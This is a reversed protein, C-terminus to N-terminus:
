IARFRAPHRGISAALDRRARGAADELVIAAIWGPLAWAESVAVADVQHGADVELRIWADVEAAPCLARAVERDVRVEERRSVVDWVDSGTEPCGGGRELHVLEHALVATREAQDLDASLVITSRGAASVRCAGNVGEPLRRIRIDLDNRGAVFSWPSVRRAM